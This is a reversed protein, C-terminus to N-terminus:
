DAGHPATPRNLLRATTHDNRGLARQLSLRFDSPSNQRAADDREAGANSTAVPRVATERRVIRHCKAVHEFVNSEIVDVDRRTTHRCGRYKLNPVFCSKSNKNNL